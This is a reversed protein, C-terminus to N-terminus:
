QGSRLVTRSVSFWRWGIGLHDKRRRIRQPRRLGIQDHCDPIKKFDTDGVKLETVGAVLIKGSFHFRTNLHNLTFHALRTFGLAFRTVFAGIQM